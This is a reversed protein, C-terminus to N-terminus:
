VNGQLSLRLTARPARQELQDPKQRLLPAPQHQRRAAIMRYEIRLMSGGYRIPKVSVCTRFVRTGFVPM